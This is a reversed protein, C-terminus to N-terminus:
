NLYLIHFNGELLKVSNVLINLLCFIRKIFKLLNKIQIFKQFSHKQLCHFKWMKISVITNLTFSSFYFHLIYFQNKFTYRFFCTGSFAEFTTKEAEPLISAISIPYKAHKQNQLRLKSEEFLYKCKMKSGHKAWDLDFIKPKKWLSQELLPEAETKPRM